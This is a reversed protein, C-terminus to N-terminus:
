KDWSGMAEEATLIEDITYSMMADTDEFFLARLLDNQRQSAEIASVMPNFLMTHM